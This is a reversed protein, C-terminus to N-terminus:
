LWAALRKLAAATVQAPPHKRPDQEAEIVYWGGYAAGTLAKIVAAFDVMGEGPPCFLHEQVADRFSVGARTLSLHPEVGGPTGASTATLLRALVDERVDKLHVHAIRSAHAEVLEVPDGGGYVSHGTDLCLGVLEPDTVNLVREVEPPTEIATGGHPHVCARVGRANAYAGLENLGAGVLAWQEDTLPTVHERPGAADWVSHGAEAFVAVSAGAAVSFEIHRRGIALQEAFLEEYAFSVWSYAGALELGRQDLEARLQRPDAPYAGSYESGSVGLQAVEDMVEAWDQQGWGM